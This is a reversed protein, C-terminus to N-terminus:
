ALVWGKISNNLGYVGNVVLGKSRAVKRVMSALNKIDQQYMSGDIRLAKGTELASHISEFDSYDIRGDFVELTDVAWHSKENDMGKLRIIGNAFRRKIASIDRRMTQYENKTEGRHDPIAIKEGNKLRLALADHRDELMKQVSVSRVKPKAIKIEKSWERQKKAIEVKDRRDQDAMEKMTIKNEKQVKSAARRKEEKTMNARTGSVFIIAETSRIIGGNPRNEAQKHPFEKLWEEVENVPMSTDSTKQYNSHM